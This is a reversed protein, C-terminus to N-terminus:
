KGWFRYFDSDVKNWAIIEQKNVKGTQTNM